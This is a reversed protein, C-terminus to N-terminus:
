VSNAKLAEMDSNLNRVALALQKSCPTYCDNM